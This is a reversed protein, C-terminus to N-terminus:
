ASGGLVAASRVRAPLGTPLRLTVAFSLPPEDDGADVDALLTVLSVIMAAQLMAMHNGACLRRGGGFPLYAPGVAGRREESFRWPDFALPEAFNRPDRHQVWPCFVLIRGASVTYGGVDLASTAVRHLVPVPPYLRLAEQLVLRVLPVQECLQEDAVGAERAAQLDDRLARHVRPHRSLLSLATTTLLATTDHGAIMLTIAEDRVWQAHFVEDDRRGAEVLASLVDEEGTPSDSRQEILRALHRDLEQVDTRLRGQAAEDDRGSNAAAATDLVGDLVRSLLPRVPRFDAAFVADGLNELTLDAIRAALDVEGDDVLGALWRTTNEAFLRLHRRVHRPSLGRQVVKRRPQWRPQVSSLLGDGTVTATAVNIPARRTEDPAEQLFRAVFAGDSVLVREHGGLPFAVVDGHEAVAELFRPLDSGPDPM